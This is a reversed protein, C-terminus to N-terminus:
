NCKIGTNLQPDQSTFYLKLTEPIFPIPESPEPIASFNIRKEGISVCNSTRARSTAKELLFKCFWSHIQLAHGPNERAM